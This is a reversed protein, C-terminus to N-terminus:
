LRNNLFYQQGTIGFNSVLKIFKDNAKFIGFTKRQQYALWFICCKNTRIIKNM